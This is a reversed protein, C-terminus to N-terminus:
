AVKLLAKYLKEPILCIEGSNKDIVSKVKGRNMDRLVDFFNIDIDTMDVSKLKVPSLNAM